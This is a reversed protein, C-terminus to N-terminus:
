KKLYKGEYRILEQYLKCHEFDGLCVKNTTYDVACINAFECLDELTKTDDEAM